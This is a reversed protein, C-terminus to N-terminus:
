KVGLTYPDSETGEGGTIKVDNKLVYVPRVYYKWGNSFIEYGYGPNENVANINNNAWYNGQGNIIRVNFTVRDGRETVSRSALAYGHRDPDECNLKQMQEYDEVYNQDTGKFKGKFDSFWEYQSGDYMPAEDFYPDDPVSGVSRAQTSYLDNNTSNAIDNLTEIINNYSEMAENFDSLNDTGTSAPPNFGVVVEEIGDSALIQTGYDSWRDYLVICRITDIRTGSVSEYEVWDGERLVDEVTPLGEEVTVICTGKKGSGDQATATITASGEKKATVLGTSSNVSAVTTNSSTWRVTKNNANSPSISATLQRTQGEELTVSSPSVNVSTVLQKVTIGNSVKETANGAKDVTLVHLYYTGKSSMNKSIKEGNSNFTGGTYKSADTGLKTSSTNWIYKCASINVGSENDTHTVTAIVTTGTNVSTSSLSIKADQPVKDDKVTTSADQGYNTGDYLRAFVTDNHNLNGIVGGEPVPQWNAEVITAGVQYQMRYGTNTSITVSAKGSAWTPNTFTIIGQEVAEQGGPLNTTTITATKETTNGARDTVIVKLTHEVGQTLGTYNYSSNTSTERAETEEDVYYQYTNTDALGSEGDSATVTLTAGNTTINSANVSVEPGEEDKVTTTAYVKSENTGDFLRGYVTENHHLGDITQGPTAPQWAENDIQGEGVVIQYQLAFGEATTNITTKATGDGVWEAPTLTITGEPIEGLYVNQEGTTSGEETTIIVRINYIEGQTLGEITCTNSKNDTEVKKWQEEGEADNKYWYEYTADEANTAVVEISASNTTESTVKIEQIRPGTLEGQYEGLEPVSRDLGFVHGDLGIAKDELYVKPERKKIFEDLFGNPDYEPNIKKEIFADGLVMTLTERATEIEHELKAQEARTILGNEGFVFNIAVTALIIIIIITLVLAVLTIGKNKQKKM